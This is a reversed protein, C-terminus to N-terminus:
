YILNKANKLGSVNNIFSSLTAILLKNQQEDGVTIRLHDHLLSHPPFDRLAVNKDAFWSILQQAYCTKVLIFNAESPYVKEIISKNKLEEILWDRSTQITDIATAFWDSMELANSALEITISSITFPAIIKKFAAIVHAQAIISGLRLGALGSAKSLTRLVVLNEYQDILTTASQAQAFEIYAEDVVVVSKDKYQNCVAAILDLGILNGTPNNPSCIMIVKCNSQWSNKIQELSLSFNNDSDLPCQILEGQQLRVYFAYMPFAPPFQMLADEGAKLFLRTVLDIGDDSGRTIVLQDSEVQYRAALQKQLTKQSRSDPYFNLKIPDTEIPAWPLENANLRHKADEGGPVYGPTNLLEPRILNLISM